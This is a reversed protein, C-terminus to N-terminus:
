GGRLFGRAEFLKMLSAALDVTEDDKENVDLISVVQKRLEALDLEVVERIEAGQITYEIGPVLGRDYIYNVHYRIDAEWAIPVKSRLYRVALPDKTVIKTLYRKVGYLLDIKEVVEVGEFSPHRVIEPMRSVKDPPIDTLFYPKHGTKDYWYLLEHKNADYLVLVAKGREGDYEVDMLFARDVVGVEKRDKVFKVVRPSDISVEQPIKVETDIYRFVKVIGESPETEAKAKASADQGGSSGRGMVVEEMRTISWEAESKEVEMMDRNQDRSM